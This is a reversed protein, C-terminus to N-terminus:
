KQNGDSENCTPHDSDCFDSLIKLEAKTQKGKGPRKHKLTPASPDTDKQCVAKGHVTANKSTVTGGDCEDKM